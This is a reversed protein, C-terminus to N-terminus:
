SRILLLPARIAEELFEIWEDEALSAATGAKMFATAKKALEPDSVTGTKEHQAIIADIYEEMQALTDDLESKRVRAGDLLVKFSALDEVRQPSSGKGMGVANVLEHCIVALSKLNKETRKLTEETEIVQNEFGPQPRGHNFKLALQMKKVV